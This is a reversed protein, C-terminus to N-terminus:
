GLASSSILVVDISYDRIREAATELTDVVMPTHGADSFLREFSAMDAVGASVLLVTLGQSTQKTRAVRVARTLEDASVPRRLFVDVGHRSLEATDGM